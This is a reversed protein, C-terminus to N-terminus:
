FSWKASFLMSWTSSLSNYNKWTPETFKYVGNNYDLITNTSLIQNVGWNSNLMNGINNIDASVELTHQKGAINFYFDQAVKVNIRNLFPAVIGGRESYEGRHSSCYKDDALFAKYAAKNEDSAFPMSALESDTPIYLLQAVKNLGSAGNASMLYSMRSYSYSSMYGINYGEYFVGLKTAAHAGEKITYSASAIVRHPAVYSSYGLMPTNTGHITYNNAMEYVQDGNGDTLTKSNSYTYAAMLDLGWAFSKSLQATASYYQGHFDKANKLYYGGVTAAKPTASNKINESAWVERAAPEGPLVVTGANKYGLTNVYVENSNYSYIGEFTAKIGGPLNADVALSTKWSSPMRLDKAIITAGTPAPNDQMVYKGSSYISNIIQSRDNSFHVPAYGTGSHAIYQYQLVNANGIASVLWVNPIRGTYIGTGGRVILNRNKLVDWNFGIRPSVNVRNVPIDSTKLGAFSSEPNNVGLSTFDKNENETPINIMPLEFRIGATLKFNSSFSIEDQAYWSVQTNTFAPFAQQTPDELNAHTIMFAAPLTSASPNLVDNKFTEWSDYIYWGAGGQMFGNTAKNWEFQVGGIVNHIGTQYTLEETVNYTQVDRLNGYTFPDIGFTTFIASTDSGTAGAPNLIDVTPFFGGDYSRPEDQHSWTFRLVNNGKGEFLRSTLEAAVSTFNQEQYYRSNSFYLAYPSQRGASYRNFTITEGNYKYSSNTGGIPSMSSSPASSYFSHTHSFRVNFRNNDNINWDIRALAKYSPTNLAYGQYAGPDYGFKDMLFSKIEDLESELPRNYSTENGWADNASKRALRTSGPHNDITYEANVFYFLKNKVIPGGITFGTTNNLSKDNAVDEGAVKTGKFTDATYYDYVSAHFTNSGSKTVANIAGGTFGSQRVDFPTVNITLQDLADLSIPSGGAPLNSGIGFQNNFAAGDVTVSSGRYNGGGVAFGSTTTSAQPTLKMIDNMSRSVTPVSSMRKANISTGVGSHQINMKSDVAEATFVAADLGLSEEELTFDVINNEALAAYVDTISMKRYGLMEVSITYPGGPNVGNIRYSGNVDSVGYYTAGTPVYTAIVPAGIVAGDVDSVKGSLTSTTVQASATFVCMLVAMASLVIRLYNKM